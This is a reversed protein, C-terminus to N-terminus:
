KKRGEVREFGLTRFEYAARAKGDAGTSVM